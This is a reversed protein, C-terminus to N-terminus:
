CLGAEKMGELIEAEVMQAAKAPDENKTIPRGVVLFDCGNIIADKPTM